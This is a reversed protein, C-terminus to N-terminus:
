ACLAAAFREAQAIEGAALHANFSNMALPVQARLDELFVDANAAVARLTARKDLAKLTQGTAGLIRVLQQLTEVNGSQLADLHQLLLLADQHRGDRGLSAALDQLERLDLQPQEAAANM